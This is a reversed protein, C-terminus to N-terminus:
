FDNRSMIILGKRKNVISVSSFSSSLEFPNVLKCWDRCNVRIKNLGCGKM